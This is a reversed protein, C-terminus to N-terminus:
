GGYLEGMKTFLEFGPSEVFENIKDKDYDEVKGFPKLFVTDTRMRVVYDYKFNNEEEYERKLKM